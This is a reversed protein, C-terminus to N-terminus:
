AVAVVYDFQVGLFVGIGLESRRMPQRRPKGRRGALLRDAGEPKAPLLQKVGGGGVRLLRRHNGIAGTTVRTGAGVATGIAGIPTGIRTTGAGARAADGPGAM